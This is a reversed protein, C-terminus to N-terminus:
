TTELLNGQIMVLHFCWRSKYFAPFIKHDRASIEFNGDISKLFLCHIEYQFSHIARNKSICLSHIHAIIDELIIYFM